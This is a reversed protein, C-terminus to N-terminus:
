NPLFFTVLLSFSCFLVINAIFNLLYRIHLLLISVLLDLATRAVPNAFVVRLDPIIIEREEKRDEEDDTSLQSARSDRGTSSRNKELDIEENFNSDMSQMFSSDSLRQHPTSQFSNNAVRADLTEINPLKNGLDSESLSKRRQLLFRGIVDKQQPRTVPRVTINIPTDTDSESNELSLASSSRSFDGSYSSFTQIRLRNLPNHRSKDHDVIFPLSESGFNFADSSTYIIDAIHILIQTCINRRTDSLIDQVSPFRLFLYQIFRLSTTVMHMNHRQDSNILSILNASFGLTQNFLHNGEVVNKTELESSKSESVSFSQSTFVQESDVRTRVSYHDGVSHSIARNAVLSPGQHLYSSSITRSSVGDASLSRTIVTLIVLFGEPNPVASGTSFTATLREWDLDLQAQAQAETISHGMTIAFLLFLLTEHQRGSGFADFTPLSYSLMPYGKMARLQSSFQSSLGVLLRMARVTTSLKTVRYYLFNSLWRFNFATFYMKLEQQDDQRKCYSQWLKFLMELLKNRILLCRQSDMGGASLSSVVISPARGTRISAPSTSTTSALTQQQTTTSTSAVSPLSIISIRQKKTKKAPSSMVNASESTNPDLSRFTSSDSTEQTSVRSSFRSSLTSLIFNALLQLEEQRPEISLLLFVIEIVRDILEEHLSENLLLYVLSKVTRLSHLQSCNIKRQM